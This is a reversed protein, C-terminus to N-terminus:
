WIVRRGLPRLRQGAWVPLDAAAGREVWLSGRCRPARAAPAVSPARPSLRGGGLSYLGVPLGEVHAEGVRESRDRVLGSGSSSITGTASLDATGNSSRESQATVRSRSRM